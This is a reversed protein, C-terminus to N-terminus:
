EQKSKGDQLQVQVRALVARAIENFTEFVGVGQIAIAEFDPVNVYNLVKRMKEVDMANELDRKNYQVVM